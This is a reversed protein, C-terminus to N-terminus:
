LDRGIKNALAKYFLADGNNETSLPVIMWDGEIVGDIQIATHTYYNDNELISIQKIEDFNFSISSLLGNPESFYYVVGSNTLLVGEVLPDFMGLFYFYEVDSASSLLSANELHQHHKKDLNSGITVATPLGHISVIAGFLSAGSIAVVFVITTALVVNQLVSRKSKRRFNSFGSYFARGYLAITAINIAYGIPNLGSSGIWFNSFTYTIALVAMLGSRFFMGISFLAIVAVDFLSTTGSVYLSLSFILQISAVIAAARFAANNRRVSDAETRAELILCLM